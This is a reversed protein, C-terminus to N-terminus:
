EQRQSGLLLCWWSGSFSQGPGPVGMWTRSETISDQGGQWGQRDAPRLDTIMAQRWAEDQCMAFRSRKVPRRCPNEAPDSTEWLEGIGPWGHRPRSIPPCADPSSIRIWHHTRLRAQSGKRGAQASRTCESQVTVAERQCAERQKPCSVVSGLAGVRQLWAKLSTCLKDWVSDMPDEDTDEVPPTYDPLVTTNDSHLTCQEASPSTHLVKLLIDDARSSTQVSGEKVRKPVTYQIINDDGEETFHESETLWKKYPGRKKGKGLQGGKNVPMM